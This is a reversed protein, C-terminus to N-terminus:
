KARLKFDMRIQQFRVKGLCSMGVSATAFSGSRCGSAVETRQVRIRLIRVIVMATKLSRM